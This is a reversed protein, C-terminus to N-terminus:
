GVGMVEGSSIASISASAVVLKISVLQVDFEMQNNLGLALWIKLKAM